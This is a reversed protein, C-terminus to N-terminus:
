RARTSKPRRGLASRTSTRASLAASVPTRNWLTRWDAGRSLAEIGLSGSGAYLDLVRGWGSAELGEDEDEADDDVDSEDEAGDLAALEAVEEPDDDLEAAEDAVAEDGASEDDEATDSYVSEGNLLELRYPDYLLNTLVSFLSSKLRDTMPRTTLGPPAKIQRGRASGSIVRM